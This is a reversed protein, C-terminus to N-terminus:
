WYVWLIHTRSKGILDRRSCCLPIKVKPLQWSSRSLVTNYSTQGDLVLFCFCAASLTIRSRVCVCFSAVSVARSQCLVHGVEIVSGFLSSLVFEVVTVGRFVLQSGLSLMCRKKRKEKVGSPSMECNWMVRPWTAAVHQVGAATRIIMFIAADQSPQMMLLEHVLENWRALSRGGQRAPVEQLAHFLGASPLVQVYDWSVPCESLFVHAPANAIRRRHDRMCTHM